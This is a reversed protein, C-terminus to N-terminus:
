NIERGATVVREHGCAVVDLVDLRDHDIVIVLLRHIWQRPPQFCRSDVDLEDGDLRHLVVCEDLHTRVVLQRHCFNLANQELLVRTM